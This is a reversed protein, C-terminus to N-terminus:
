ILVKLKSKVLDIENTAAKGKFAIKRAKWDVCTIQDSLVVNKTPGIIEVEFPYGKIKTTMPCCLMLGVTKNYAQPSIVLAPRHGGQEHGLVPDFDIWVIDGCDPIYAM